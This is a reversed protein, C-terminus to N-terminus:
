LVVVQPNVYYLGPTGCNVREPSYMLKIQNQIMSKRERTWETEVMENGHVVVVIALCVGAVVVCLAAADVWSAERRSLNILSPRVGEELLLM